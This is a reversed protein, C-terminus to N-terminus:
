GLKLRNKIFPKIFIKNMGGNTSLFIRELKEQKLNKGDYDLFSYKYPASYILNINKM